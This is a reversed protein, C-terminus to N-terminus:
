SSSMHSATYLKSCLLLGVFVFLYVERRPWLLRTQLCILSKIDHVLLTQISTWTVVYKIHFSIFSSFFDVRWRTTVFFVWFVKGRVVPLPRGLCSNCFQTSVRNTTAIDACADLISMYAHAHLSWNVTASYNRNLNTVICWSLKLWWCLVNMVNKGRFGLLFTIM